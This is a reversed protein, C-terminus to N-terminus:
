ARALGEIARFGRINKLYFDRSEEFAGSGAATLTYHRERIIQGAVIEQSYEGKVLGGDELRSMLQYFAPGSKRVDLGELSERIERGSLTRGRLIGVVLFQLHSLRPLDAM